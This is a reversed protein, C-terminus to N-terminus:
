QRAQAMAARVREYWASDGDHIAARRLDRLKAEDASALCALIAKDLDTVARAVPEWAQETGVLVARRRVLEKAGARAKARADKREDAAVQQELERVKARMGELQERRSTSREFSTPEVSQPHRAGLIEEARGTAKWAGRAARQCAKLERTVDICQERVRVSGALASEVASGHASTTGVQETVYRSYAADHLLEYSKSVADLDLVVSEVVARVTAVSFVHGKKDPRMDRCQRCDPENHEHDECHWEVREVTATDAM